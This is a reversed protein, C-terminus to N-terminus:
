PATGEYRIKKGVPYTSYTFEAWKLLNMRSEDHVSFKRMASVRRVEVIPNEVAAEGMVAVAVEVTADVQVQVTVEGAVEGEVKVAMKILVSVVNGKEVRQHM